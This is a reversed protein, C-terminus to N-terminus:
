NIANCIASVAPDEDLMKISEEMMNCFRDISDNVANATKCDVPSGDHRIAYNIYMLDIENVEIM